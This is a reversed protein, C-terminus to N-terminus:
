GAQRPMEEEVAEGGPHTGKQSGESVQLGSSTERRPFGGLYGLSPGDGVKFAVQKM